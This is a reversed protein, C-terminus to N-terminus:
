ESLIADTYKIGHCVTLYDSGIVAFRMISNILNSITAINERSSLFITANPAWRNHGHIMVIFQMKLIHACSKLPVASSLM